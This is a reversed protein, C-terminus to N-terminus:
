RVQLAGYLFNQIARNLKDNRHKRNSGKIDAFTWRIDATLCQMVTGLM